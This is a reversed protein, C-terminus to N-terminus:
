VRFDSASVAHMPEYINAQYAVWLQVAGRAVGEACDAMYVLHKVTRRAPDGSFRGDRPIALASWRRRLSAALNGYGDAAAAAEARASECFRRLDDTNNIDPILLRGAV